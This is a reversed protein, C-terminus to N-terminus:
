NTCNAVESFSSGDSILFDLFTDLHFFLEWKGDPKAQSRQLYNFVTSLFAAKREESYDEEEELEVEERERDTGQLGGGREGEVGDSEAGEMEEGKEKEVVEEGSGDTDGEIEEEKQKEVVEEGRGDM